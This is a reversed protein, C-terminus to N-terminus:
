SDTLIRGKVVWCVGNLLRSFAAAKGRFHLLSGGVARGWCGGELAEANLKTRVAIYMM